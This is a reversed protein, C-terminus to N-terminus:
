SGRLVGVLARAGLLVQTAQSSVGSGLSIRIWKVARRQGNEVAGLDPGRTTGSKAKRWWVVGAPANAQQDLIRARRHQV